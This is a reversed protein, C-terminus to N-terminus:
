LDFLISSLIFLVWSIPVGGIKISMRTRNEIMHAHWSSGSRNYGTHRMMNGLSAIASLVHEKAIQVAKLIKVEQSTIGLLVTKLDQAVAQHRIMYMQYDDGLGFCGQSRDKPGNVQSIGLVNVPSLLQGAPEPLTTVERTWQVLSVAQGCEAINFPVRNTGSQHFPGFLVGPTTGRTM